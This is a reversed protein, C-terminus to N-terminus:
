TVCSIRSHGSGTSIMRDQITSKGTESCCSESRGNKAYRRSFLRSQNRGDWQWHCSSDPSCFPGAIRREFRGQPLELRHIDANRLEPPLVRHGAIQLVSDEIVVEVHDPAVGPLAITILLEEETELM